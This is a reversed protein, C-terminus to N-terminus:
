VPGVHLLPAQAQAIKDASSILFFSLTSVIRTTLCRWLVCNIRPEANTVVAVNVEIGRAKHGHTYIGVMVQLITIM